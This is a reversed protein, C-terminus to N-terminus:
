FDKEFIKKIITELGNDNPYSDSNYIPISIIVGLYRCMIIKALLNDSITAFYEKDHMKQNIKIARLLCREKFEDFEEYINLDQYFDIDQLYSEIIKIANDNERKKNFDIIYKTPFIDFDVYKIKSFFEQNIDLINQSCDSILEMKFIFEGYSIFKKKTMACIVSYLILCVQETEGSPPIDNNRIKFTNIVDQIYNYHEQIAKKFSKRYKNLLRQNLSFNFNLM